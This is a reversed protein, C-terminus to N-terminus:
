AACERRKAKARRTSSPSSRVNLKVSENREFMEPIDVPPPHDRVFGVCLEDRLFCFDDTAFIDSSTMPRAGERM